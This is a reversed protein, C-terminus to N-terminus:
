HGSLLYKLSQLVNPRQPLAEVRGNSRSLLRLGYTVSPAHRDEPLIKDVFDSLQSSKVWLGPKTVEARNNVVRFRGVLTDRDM